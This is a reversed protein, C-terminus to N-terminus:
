SVEEGEPGTDDLGAVDGAYISGAPSIVGDDWHVGINAYGNVASVTGVIETQRIRVRNGIRWTMM